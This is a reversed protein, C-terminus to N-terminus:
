KYFIRVVFYNKGEGKCDNVSMIGIFIDDKKEEISKGYKKYM